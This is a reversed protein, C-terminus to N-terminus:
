AKENQKKSNKTDTQLDRCLYYFNSRGDCSSGREGTAQVVPGEQKSGKRAAAAQMGPGGGHQAEATAQVVPGEEKSGQRVFARGEEM